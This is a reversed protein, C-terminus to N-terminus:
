GSCRMTMRFHFRGQGQWVFPVMHVHFSSPKYAVQQGNTAPFKSSCDCALSCFVNISKLYVSFILSVIPLFLQVMWVLDLHLKLLRRLFHFQSSSYFVFSPELNESIPKRILSLKVNRSLRSVVYCCCRQTQLNQNAESVAVTRSPAPPPSPPFCLLKPTQTELKTIKRKNEVKPFLPEDHM